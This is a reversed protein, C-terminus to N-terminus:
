VPFIMMTVMARSAMALVLFELEDHIMEVVMDPECSIVKEFPSGGFARSLPFVGEVILPEDELGLIQNQM